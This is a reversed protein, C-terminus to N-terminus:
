YMKQIDCCWEIFQSQTLCAEVEGEERVWPWDSEPPAASMSLTAEESHLGRGEYLGQDRDPGQGQESSTTVVSLSTLIKIKLMGGRCKTDVSGLTKKFVALKDLSCM